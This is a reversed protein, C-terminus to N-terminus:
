RSFAMMLAAAALGVAILLTTNDEKPKDPSYGNGNGNGPVPNFFGVEKANRIIQFWKTFPQGTNESIAFALAKIEEENMRKVEERHEWIAQNIGAESFEYKAMTAIISLLIAPVAGLSSTTCNGCRTPARTITYM